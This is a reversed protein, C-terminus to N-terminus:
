ISTRRLISMNKRKPDPQEEGELSKELLTRQKNRVRLDERLKELQGKFDHTGEDYTQENVIECGKKEV